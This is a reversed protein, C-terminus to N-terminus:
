FINGVMENQKYGSNPEMTYVNLSVEAKIYHTMKSSQWKSAMQLLLLFKFFSHFPQVEFYDM